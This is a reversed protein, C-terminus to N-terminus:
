PQYAWLLKLMKLMKLMKLPFFNHLYVIHTYIYIFTYIYGYLECKVYDACM